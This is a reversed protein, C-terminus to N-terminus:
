QRHLMEFIDQRVLHNHKKNGGQTHAQICAQELIKSNMGQTLCNFM